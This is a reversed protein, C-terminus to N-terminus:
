RDQRNIWAELAPNTTPESVELVAEADAGPDATGPMDSTVPADRQARLEALSQAVQPLNRAAQAMDRTFDLDQTQMRGGFFFTVIISILVWVSPPIISWATFIETARVVDWVPLMLIVLAGTVFLPRPLRNLGDVLRDFWGRRPQSFEAAFQALAAADFDSARGASAEANPRIAEIVEVVRNSGRGFLVGFIQTILGM